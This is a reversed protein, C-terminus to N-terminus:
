LERIPELAPEQPMTHIGPANSGDGSFNRPRKERRGTDLLWRDYMREVNRVVQRFEAIYEEHQNANEGLGHGILGQVEDLRTFKLAM